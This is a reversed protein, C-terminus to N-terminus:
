SIEVTALVTGDKSRVILWWHGSFQALEGNQRMEEIAEEAHQLAMRLDDAEVGDDDRITTLGDTLDFYFRQPM